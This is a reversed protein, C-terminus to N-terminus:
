PQGISIDFTLIWIVFPPQAARPWQDPQGASGYPNGWDDAMNKLLPLQLTPMAWWLQHLSKEAASITHM